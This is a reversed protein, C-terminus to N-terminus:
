AELIAALTEKRKSIAAGTKSIRSTMPVVMLAELIEAQAKLSETYVAVTKLIRLTTGLMRTVRLTMALNKSVRM